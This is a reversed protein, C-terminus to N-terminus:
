PDTGATRGSVGARQNAPRRVGAIEAALAALGQTLKSKPAVESLVKGHVLARDCATQDQPLFTVAGTRVSHELTARIEHSSWGLTGRMRNVVVHPLCQPVVMTLDSLARVLRGLGVPDAAGVVVVVDAQELATVTAGNRRPATTDYSIEEDLELSFGCDLVTLEALGRSAMVVQRLLPPRVETWRDARPIGTLVRLTPTVARAHGALARATLKGMNATRTAALLGSSEDLLGLLQATSGGYVDCDVVMTQNGLSALESGLGLAVVSRGPAGSPGWVAIVRGRRPAAQQGRASAPQHGPPQRGSWVAGPATSGYRINADSAFPRGDQASAPTGAVDVDWPSIDQQGTACPDPSGSGGARRASAERVAEVVEASADAAVVLDVGLSRLVAEDASTASATVGVVAVEEDALRGVLEADLGRLAVSVLAVQAQRSSATAILDVIDVCRRVVHLEHGRLSDLLGAEFDSAGVAVLVGTPTM